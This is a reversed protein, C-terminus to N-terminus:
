AGAGNSEEENYKPLTFHFSTGSGDRATAWLEGGHAELISRSISLGMGMGGPKTSYFSEFIRPIADMDLGPGSDEVITLVQDGDANRTTIVLERPREDVRSMAEIANMVLNLVVQQLQVRDGAVPSLDSAFQARVTVSNRKTEDGILALVERITQNLDLKERPTATKRTLARIRAIVEGARKGDRVIRRLGERAEELNPSDGALWRLGASANSVVGALPQNVEHAISATLEGMISVRNIHALDAELQRLKGRQEEARKRDTVDITTGVYEVVAGSASFVPHGIVHVHKVAGDPLLTRFDTEFDGNERAARDFLERIRTRDDPDIRQVMAEFSPVGGGPDFGFLRSHEESSHTNEGTAVNWVWSGTHSLRQAEALYAESRRLAENLARVESNRRELMGVRVYYISWVAMLFAAAALLRFWTAEYFAPVISFDLVDGENNWVGSNNSATVRFRYDRPALNSYQVERKDVAERWGSDQGELMYRFRIKEPAALSLATYNITLDRVHPPLRLGREANFTKGNATIQEVHVAPPVANVGIHSPDIYSVAYGNRFWIRGDSSKSVFPRFGLLPILRVGDSADFKTVQVMRKPDVIWADLETRPIRLLGCRTYLWWSSLDDEIIWHVADCPLGNATSLTAVRGNVIRSVGNETAAWMTGEHDRSLNLVRSVDPSHNSLALRQIQGARFRAIGGTILGTWIAGDPDAVLGSGPGGGVTQWPVRETIKGGTLHALGYENGPLWLSLWLGGHEDSAIANKAGAPVSSEPTFKGKEFAALGRYGSVWIRGREDEFLSQIEDDPLGPNERRRYITTRGNKWRNLGEETGIWISGDRAALVSTTRASSLGQKLSLSTVPLEHFQDLGDSTGAWITGERDEFLANVHDSSLGDEHTFVSTKGKYSHILGHDTTGIWLGGDRDRLLSTPNLPLPAGPVPYDVIRTGAIQRVSDTGVLLASGHDSQALAQRHRIPTILYRTPPGPNWRWLGTGAGVWLNGDSDEYLSAVASGLSGDDGYCKVNGGRIACLRGTPGKVAGAWVTGARDQLLTLHIHHALAPYETMRGNKWSVLGDFAGIWLTGDRAPLLAEVVTGPLQRGAPLALPAARVGDFCFAGSQTGLWLYGDATQSIAYVAGSPFGNGYTWASHAYQDIDLSANLASACPSWLLVTLTGLVIPSPKLGRQLKVREM